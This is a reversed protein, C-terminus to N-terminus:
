AFISFFSTETIEKSMMPMAGDRIVKGTTRARVEARYMPGFDKELLIVIAM